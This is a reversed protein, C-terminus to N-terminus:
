SQLTTNISSWREMRWPTTTGSGSSRRSPCAPQMAYLPRHMQALRSKSPNRPLSHSWQSEPKFIGIKIASKVSIHVLTIGALWTTVAFDLSPLGVGHENHGRIKVTYETSEKLNPLTISKADAAGSRASQWQLHLLHKIFKTGKCLGPGRTSLSRRHLYGRLGEDPCQNDKAGGM